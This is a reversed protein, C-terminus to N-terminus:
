AIGHATVSVSAGANTIKTVPSVTMAIVNLTRMLRLTAISHRPPPLRGPVKTLLAVLRSKASILRSTSLCDFTSLRQGKGLELIRNKTSSPFRRIVGPFQTRRAGEAAISPFRVHAGM